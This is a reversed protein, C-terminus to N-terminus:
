VEIVKAQSLLGDFDNRDTGSLFIQAGTQPLFDYLEGRRQEDFHAAIDDLLVVLPRHPQQQRVGYAHALILSLLM